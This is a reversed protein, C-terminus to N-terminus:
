RKYKTGAKDDWRRILRCLTPFGEADLKMHASMVPDLFEKAHDRVIPELHDQVITGNYFGQEEGIAIGDLYNLLITAEIRFLRPNAALEGSDRVAGLKKLVSHLVPDNEYRECAKLTEWGRQDRRLAGIQFWAIAATCHRPDGGVLGGM